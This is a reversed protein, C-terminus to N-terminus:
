SRMAGKMLSVATSSVNTSNDVHVNVGSNNFINNYANSLANTISVWESPKLDESDLFTNAKRLANSMTTHFDSDLKQLGTVGEHVAELKKVLKAPVDEEKAKDVIIQVALPDITTVDLQKEADLEKRLKLVTQYGIDTKEAVDKPTEGMALLSKARLRSEEKTTM